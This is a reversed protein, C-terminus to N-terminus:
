QLVDFRKPLTLKLLIFFVHASFRFKSSSTGRCLDDILVLSTPTMNELILKLEQMETMFTSNGFLQQDYAGTRLLIADFVPLGARACPVFCGIQNLVAIIGVLHLLSATEEVTSDDELLLLRHTANLAIDVDLTLSNGLTVPNFPAIIEMRWDVNSLHARVFRHQRSVLAFAMLVDLESLTQVVDGMAKRYSHDLETALIQSLEEEAADFQQRLTNWRAGLAEVTPVTFWVGTAKSARLITVLRGHHQHLRHSDKRSVRMAFGVGPFGVQDGEDFVTRVKGVPLHLARAVQECDPNANGSSVGYVLVRVQNVADTIETKCESIESRLRLLAACDVTADNDNTGNSETLGGTSQATTQDILDCFPLVQGVHQMLTAFNLADEPQVRSSGQSCELIEVTDRIWRSLAAFSQSKAFRRTLDVRYPYDCVQEYRFRRVLSM